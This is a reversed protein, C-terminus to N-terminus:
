VQLTSLTVDTLFATCISVQELRWLAIKGLNRNILQIYRFITHTNESKTYHLHYFAGEKKSLLLFRKKIAYSSLHVKFVRQNCNQSSSFCKKPNEEDNTKNFGLSLYWSIMCKHTFVVPNKIRLRTLILDIDHLIIGFINYDSCLVARLYCAININFFLFRKKFM